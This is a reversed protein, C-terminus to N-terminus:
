KYKHKYTNLKPFPPSSLGHVLSVFEWEPHLLPRVEESEKEKNSLTRLKVGRNDIFGIKVLSEFTKKSYASILEETTCPMWCCETNHLGGDTTFIDVDHVYSGKPFSEVYDDLKYDFRYTRAPRRHIKISKVEHNWSQCSHILDGSKLNIAWTLIRRDLKSYLQHFVRSTTNHALRTKM